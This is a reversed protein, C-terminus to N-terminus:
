DRKKKGHRRRGHGRRGKGHKGWKGGGGSKKKTTWYKHGWPEYKADAMADGDAGASIYEGTAYTDQDTDASNDIAGSDDINSKSDSESGSYAFDEGVKVKWHGHHWYDDYIPVTAEAYADSDATNKVNKGVSDTKTNTVAYTGLGYNADYGAGALGDAMATAESNHWEHGWHHWPKAYKAVADSKGSARAKIYEGYTEAYNSQYADNEIYGDTIHSKSSGDSESWATESDLYGWDDYVPVDAYASAYGTADSKVNDGEAETYTEVYTDTGGANSYSYGSASASASSGSKWDDARVVSPALLVAVAAVAAVLATALRAPRKPMPMPMAMM